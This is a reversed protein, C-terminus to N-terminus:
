KKNIKKILADAIAEAIPYNLEKQLMGWEGQPNVELFWYNGDTGKIFDLAGTVLGFRNMLVKIKAAIKQPVEYSEWINGQMTRWDTNEQNKIKGAFCKGDVCAIRLEYEKEIYPQIIMPCYIIGDFDHDKEASILLTETLAEGSMSQGNPGHLKAVANEAGTKKLFKKIEPANNTFLTEPVQLGAEKAARLQYLKNRQIFYDAELPNIWPLHAIGAYLNNRLYGYENSFLDAFDADLDDPIKVSWTKRHWVGTFSSSHVSNGNEDTLSFSGDSFQAIQQSDGIHDTNLRFYSIGKQQLYNFFIDVNYFDASHTLVLIM